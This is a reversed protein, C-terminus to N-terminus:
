KFLRAQKQEAKLLANLECTDRFRIVRSANVLLRTGAPLGMFDDKLILRGNKPYAWGSRPNLDDDDFVKILKM